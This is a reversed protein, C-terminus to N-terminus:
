NSLEIVIYTPLCYALSYYKAKDGQVKWSLHGGLRDRHALAASSSGDTEFLAQAGSDVLKDVLASIPRPLSSSKGAAAETASTMAFFVGKESDDTWALGMHVSAKKNFEYGSGPTGNGDTYQQIKGPSAVDGSGWNPFLCIMGGIASYLSPNQSVSPEPHPPGAWRPVAWVFQNNGSPGYQGLWSKCQPWSTAWDGSLSDMAASCPIQVYNEIAVGQTKISSPLHGQDPRWPYFFSGTLLIFAGPNCSVADSGRANPIGATFADYIHMRAKDNRVAVLRYYDGPTSSANFAQESIVQGSADLYCQFLKFKDAGPGRYETLYDRVGAFFAHHGVRDTVTFLIKDTWEIGGVKVHLVINISSGQATPAL